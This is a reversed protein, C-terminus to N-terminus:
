SKVWDPHWVLLAPLSIDSIEHPSGDYWWPVEGEGDSSKEFVCGFDPESLGDRIVSGPPLTDLQEVTRVTCVDRWEEAQYDAFEPTAYTPHHVETGTRLLVEALAPFETSM